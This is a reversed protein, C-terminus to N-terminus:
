LNSVIKHKLIQYKDTNNDHEMSDLQFSYSQLASNVLLNDSCEFQSKNISTIDISINLSLLSASDVSETEDISSM